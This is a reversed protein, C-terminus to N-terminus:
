GSDCVVHGVLCVDAVERDDGVDVVPLRRQGVADELHRLGDVGPRHAGLHEVRHVELALAADRDLGLRHADVVRRAVALGVLQVEDVRGAVHVEGVLHAAAEGRALARQEDDVRALADLGLRERVGVEGDVGAELEDRAQVLDVQRAGLGLADGLLDGVQEALRGVRDQADGALRALPDLVDELLEDRLDRRRGAVGVGLRAREDEVRLEVLVAADDGVDADDVADELLALRDARHRGPGLGVDVVDAEERGAIVLASSSWAPSTPKRMVPMLSTVFSRTPSVSVVFDLM